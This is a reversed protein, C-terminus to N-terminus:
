QGIKAGAAKIYDEIGTESKNKLVYLQKLIDRANAESVGKLFVSKALAEMAQDNKSDQVYAVGLRFYAIPDDTKSKLATLFETQAPGFKKQHLYILGLTYHMQATLETKQEDTLRSAEPSAIFKPLATMAENALEEARAMHKTKEADSAPPTKAMPNSFM